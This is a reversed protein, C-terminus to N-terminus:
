LVNTRLTLRSPCPISLLSYFISFLSDLISFRLFRSGRIITILSQILFFHPQSNFQQLFFHPNSHNSHILKTNELILFSPKRTMSKFQKWFDIGTLDIQELFHIEWEFYFYYEINLIFGTDLM